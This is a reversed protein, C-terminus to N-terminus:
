AGTWEAFDTVGSSDALERAAALSERKIGEELKETFDFPPRDPMRGTGTQHFSAYPVGQTGYNFQNGSEARLANPSASSTLAQLMSGSAVLTPRGPYRKAKQEAYAPSLPAFGGRNPGQGGAAIQEGVERELLVTLKPFFVQGFNDFSEGYREFATSMKQLALEDDAGRVRYGLTMGFVSV